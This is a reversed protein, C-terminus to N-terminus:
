DGISHYDYLFIENGKKELYKYNYKHQLNEAIILAVKQTNELDCLIDEINLQHSKRAIEEDNPYVTIKMGHHDGWSKQAMFHTTKIEHYFGIDM